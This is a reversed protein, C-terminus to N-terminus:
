KEETQKAEASLKSAELNLDRMQQHLIELDKTLTYVQYNLHGAKACLESYEKHIVEITRKSESM